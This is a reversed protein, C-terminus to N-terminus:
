NKDSESFNLKEAAQEARVNLGASDLPKLGQPFTPKAVLIQESIGQCVIKGGFGSGTV